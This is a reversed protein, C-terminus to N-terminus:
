DLKYLPGQHSTIEPCIFEIHSFRWKLITKHRRFPLWKAEKNSIELVIEQNEKKSFILHNEIFFANNKYNLYSNRAIVPRSTYVTVIPVCVTGILTGSWYGTRHHLVIYQVVHVSYTRPVETLTKAMNKVHDPMSPINSEPWVHDFWTQNHEFCTQVHKFLSWTKAINLVQVHKFMTLNWVNGFLVSWTKVMNWTQCNLTFMNPSIEHYDMIGVINTWIWFMNLVYDFCTWDHGSLM